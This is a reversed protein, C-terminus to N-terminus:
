HAEQSGPRGGRPTVVELGAQRARASEAQGIDLCLLDLHCHVAACVAANDYNSRVGQSVTGIALIGRLRM